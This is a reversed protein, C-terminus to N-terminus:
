KTGRAALMEQRTRELKSAPTNAGRKWGITFGNGYRMDIYEIDAAQGAIIDAVVDLFLDTRRDVDKRGLRVEIGNQLTMEWSGRDDLQVRTLDLGAPILRERVSLYRAAVIEASSRSPGSLKPLEAPVHRVEAVFLEGRTNLLGSEGWVAAPIQETVAISIRSPWRRAVRAQDIWPLAVIQERITSLDSGVFGADIQDDIAEEIQLATVRQFPGSIEISSIKRDLMTLSLQYTAFIVGAALLPAVMRGIRITPLTFRKKTQQKRRKAQKRAM